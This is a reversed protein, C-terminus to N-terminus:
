PKGKTETAVTTTASGTQAMAAMVLIAAVLDVDLCQSAALRARFDLWLTVIEANTKM